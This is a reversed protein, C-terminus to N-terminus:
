LISLNKLGFHIVTAGCGPSGLIVVPVLILIRKLLEPMMYTNVTYSCIASCM